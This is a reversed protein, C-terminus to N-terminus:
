GGGALLLSTIAGGWTNVQDIVMRRKQLFERQLLAAPTAVTGSILVSIAMVRVVPTAGPEGMATAFAPALLFGTTAILTSAAISITSVTPAIKEPDDPWRVIALSVGLENLSLAASLALLAVAYTGFENPGIVRALAIGIGLTGFRTAIGNVFSLALARPARSVPSLEDDPVPDM